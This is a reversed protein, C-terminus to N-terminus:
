YYKIMQGTTFRAASFYIVKSIMKGPHRIVAIPLQTPVTHWTVGSTAIICFRNKSAAAAGVPLGSAAHNNLQTM